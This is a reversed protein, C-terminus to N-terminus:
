HLGHANLWTLVARYDEGSLQLDGFVGLLKKKPQIELAALARDVAAQAAGQDIQWQLRVQKVIDQLPIDPM